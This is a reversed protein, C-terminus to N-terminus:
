TTEEGIDVFKPRWQDGVYFVPLTRTAPNLEREAEETYVPELYSFSGNSKKVHTWWRDKDMDGVKGCIPCYSRFRLQTKNTKREHPKMYWEVLEELLCPEYIHKYKAKAPPSATSKKRYMPIDNPINFM